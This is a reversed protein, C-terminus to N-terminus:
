SSMMLALEPCSDLVNQSRLQDLTKTQRAFERGYISYLDNQQMFDILREIYQHGRTDLLEDEEIMHRLRDIALRKLHPHLVQVSLYPPWELFTFGLANKAVFENRIIADYHERLDLVNFISVVFHMLRHAQPVETKVRQLNRRWQDYVLGHRIYEGQKGVGDLSLSLRIRSFHQWLRVIDWHKYTLRSLNTDYYLEVDTKGNAILLELLHFHDEMVLPEGGALHVEEL